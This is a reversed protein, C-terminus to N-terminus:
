GCVHVHTITDTDIKDHPVVHTCATFHTLSFKVILKNVNHLFSAQFIYTIFVPKQAFMLLSLFVCRIFVEYSRFTIFMTSSNNNMINNNGTLPQRIPRESLSERQDADNDILM